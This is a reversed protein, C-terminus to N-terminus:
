PVTWGKNIAINKDDATLSAYGPNARVDITQTGSATGLNNFINVIADRTLSAKRLNVARTLGVVDSWSLNGCSYNSYGGYYTNTTTTNTLNWAPVYRLSPCFLIANTSTIVSTTSYAPINILSTCGYFLRSINTAGSLELEPADTMLACGEFLSQMTGSFQSLDFDVEKLSRCGEFASSLDTCSSFDFINGVRRLAVCNKFLNSGSTAVKLTVDSEILQLANLSEFFSTGVTANSALSFVRIHELRRAAVWDSSTGLRWSTLSSSGLHIDLVNMADGYLFSIETISTGSIEVVVQRYGRTSITGPDIDDKDWLHSHEGAGISSTGDGWDITIDTGNVTFSIPSYQYEYGVSCLLYIKHEDFAISPLPLWDVPRNYELEDIVAGQDALSDGWNVPTEVRGDTSEDWAGPM